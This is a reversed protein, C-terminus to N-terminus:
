RVVVLRRPPHIDHLAAIRTIEAAAASGKARSAEIDARGTGNQDPSGRLLCEEIWDAHALARRGIRVLKQIQAEPHMTARDRASLLSPHLLPAEDRIPERRVGACSRCTVGAELLRPGTPHEPTLLFGNARRGTCALLVYGRGVAEGYHTVHRGSRPMTRVM